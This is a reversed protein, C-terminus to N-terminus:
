GSMLVLSARLALTSGLAAESSFGAGGLLHDAIGAVFPVFVPQLPLDNWERSLSSTFLLVRGSGLSREILLPSGTELSMLVRDDAAPEIETFRM